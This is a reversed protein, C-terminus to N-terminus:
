VLHPTLIISLAVAPTRTAIASSGDAAACALAGASAGVTAADGADAGRAVIVGDGVADAREVAREVGARLKKFADELVAETVDVLLVEYGATACVQSIGRGM